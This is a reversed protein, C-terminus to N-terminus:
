MTYDKGDNSMVSLINGRASDRQVLTCLVYIIYVSPSQPATKGVYRIQSNKRADNVKGSSTGSGSIILTVTNILDFLSHLM